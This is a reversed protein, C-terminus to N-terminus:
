PRPRDEGALLAAVLGRLPYPAAGLTAIPVGVDLLLYARLGGRAHSACAPDTDRRRLRHRQGLDAEGLGVTQSQRHALEILDQAAADYGARQHQDAAVGPDALRREQELEGALHRAGISRDQIDRAFLRDLLQLQARLPQADLAFPQYHQGFVVEVADDLVEFLRPRHHRDDVGDLCDEHAADGRRRAADALHPFAGSAQHQEGLAAVDRDEQDTVHVLLAGDGPRAHQLVDDVGHEVEFALTVVAEADQAALLIAEAGGILDTHELHAVATHVLDAIGTAGEQLVAREALDTIDHVDRQLAAARQQHLELTQRRRAAKACRASGHVPDVEVPQVHQDRHQLPTGAEVQSLIIDEDVGRTAHSQALRGGVKRHRQRDGGVFPIPGGARVQDRDALQAQAALHTAHTLELTPNELRMAEAELPGDDRGGDLQAVGLQFRHRNLADFRDRRRDIDAEALRRPLRHSAPRDADVTGRISPRLYAGVSAGCCATAHLVAPQDSARCVERDYRPREGREGRHLAAPLGAFQRAEPGCRQEGPEHTTGAAAHPLDGPGRGFAWRRALM